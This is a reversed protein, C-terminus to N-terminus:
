VIFDPLNPTCQNVVQYLHMHLQARSPSNGSSKLYNLQSIPTFMFTAFPSMVSTLFNQLDVMLIRSQMLASPYGFYLALGLHFRTRTIINQHFDSVICYATAMAILRSRSSRSRLSLLVLLISMNNRIRVLVMSEKRPPAKGSRNIEDCHM